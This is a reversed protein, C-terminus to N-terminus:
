SWKNEVIENSFSFCLTSVPPYNSSIASFHLLFTIGTIALISGCCSWCMKILCTTKVGHTEIIQHKWSLSLACTRNWWFGFYTNLQVSIHYSHASIADNMGDYYLCNLEFWNLSDSYSKIATIQQLLRYHLLGSLAESQLCQQQIVAIDLPHVTNDM